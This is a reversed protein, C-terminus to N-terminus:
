TRINSEHQWFLFLLGTLAVGSREERNRGLGFIGVREDAFTAPLFRDGGKRQVDGGDPTEWQNSRGFGRAAEGKTASVRFRKKKTYGDAPTRPSETWTLPVPSIQYCAYRPCSVPRKLRRVSIPSSTLAMEAM